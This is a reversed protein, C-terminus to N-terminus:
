QGAEGAQPESPVARAERDQPVVAASASEM